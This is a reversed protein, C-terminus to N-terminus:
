GEWEVTLSVDHETGCHPCKTQGNAPVFMTPQFGIEDPDCVQCPFMVGEHSNSLEDADITTENSTM